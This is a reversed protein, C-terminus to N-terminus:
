PLTVGSIVKNTATSVLVVDKGSYLWRQGNAPAPLGYQAYDDIAVWNQYKPLYSGPPYNASGPLTQTYTVTKANRMPHGQPFESYNYNDRPYADTIKPPLYIVDGNPRYTGLNRGQNGKDWDHFKLSYPNAGDAFAPASVLLCASLILATLYKM